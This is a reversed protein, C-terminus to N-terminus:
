QYNESLRLHLYIVLLDAIHENSTDGIEHLKNKTSEATKIMAPLHKKEIKEPFRLENRIRGMMNIVRLVEAQNRTPPPKITNKEITMIKKEANSKDKEPM